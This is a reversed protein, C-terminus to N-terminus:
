LAAIQERIRTAQLDFCDGEDRIYRVTLRLCTELFEKQTIPKSLKRAKKQIKKTTAPKKRKTASKKSKKAM